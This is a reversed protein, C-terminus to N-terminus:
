EVTAYIFNEKNICIHKNLFLIKNKNELEEFIKNIQSLKCYILLPNKVGKLYIILKKEYNNKKM